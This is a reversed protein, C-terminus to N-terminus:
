TAREWAGILSLFNREILQVCEDDSCTGGFWSDVPGQFISRGVAFGKCISHKRALVLSDRLEALPVGKGLLIVGRCETDCEAIVASIENWEAERAPSEIKWWDPLIGIKYLHRMVAAIEFRASDCGTTPLVEVLLERDLGRCTLFLERLRADQAVRIEPACELDYYVLCKVVHEQPWLRLTVGLRPGGVFELPTVNAQEIPRALWHGGGTFRELLDAGYQEDIIAGVHKRAKAVNQWAQGILMKAARIHSESRGFRRAAEEFQHRHDFALITLQPWDAKRRTSWHLQALAKDEWLRVPRETASLFYDLERASPMSASCAHRSVVMAGCANGYRCCIEREKNRIWGLLFGALFADGAGTANLIEVPFSAASIGGDLDPPIEAAYVMSGQAGRKRVIAAATLSRLKDLSERVDDSGGAICLEEETGVILDCEPVISQLHASVRASKVFMQEGRAHQTLGWLVPRYDIDFVVRGGNEKAIRIAKRSAADLNPRSFHTGTVLLVEAAGVLESDIDSEALALDASNEYYFVRPFNDCKRIALTILGTLQESDFRVARADVDENVFTTRVFRGLPDDGVRAIMATRLGLRAAGICVNSASGGVYMSFTQVSELPAGVQEGYLDVCTRGICVLDLQKPSPTLQFEQTLRILEVVLSVFPVL